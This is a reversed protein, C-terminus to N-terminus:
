INTVRSYNLKFLTTTRDLCFYIDICTILNRERTSTCGDSITNFSITDNSKYCCTM